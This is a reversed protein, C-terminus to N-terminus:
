STANLKVIPRKDKPSCITMQPIGTEKAYQHQSKNQFYLAFIVEQEEKTLQCSM